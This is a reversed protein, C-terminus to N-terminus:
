KVSYVKIGKNIIESRVFWDENLQKLTIPYPSLKWNIKLYIDRIKERDFFRSGEFKESVLALDIDSWDKQNNSAYSGFIYAKLINYDKKNLEIILKEIDNLINSDIEVM